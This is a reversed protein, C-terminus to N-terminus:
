YRQGYASERVTVSVRFAVWLKVSVCFWLGLALETRLLVISVGLCSLVSILPSLVDMIHGVTPELVALFLVVGL